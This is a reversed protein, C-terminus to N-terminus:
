RFLSHRRLRFVKTASYGTSNGDADMAEVRWYFKGRQRYAGATLASAVTTGQTVDTEVGASFDPRSAIELTYQALGPRGRWSFILARSHRALATNTVPSLDREFSALPSYPGTLGGSFRARVQWHFAGAGALGIPVMAPIPVSFDRVSGDPLVVHVDYGIAGNVPTWRLAPVFDGSSSGALPQPTPLVQKFTGTSSWTLAIGDADNAQVRWYLTSQAPYTTTSVYGTSGTQVNTLLTGFSPDTSVQLTYTEAGQVPTWRFEPQIAALQAGSTPSLLTPPTSRKQFDAASAHLPDIPLGTQPVVPLGTGDSGSAPLVAWYYSTTEDAYTRTPVFAPIHTFAYDVLTTFTPDRAIIIWYANAGAIPKWTFMPTQGRVVGGVPSLYDGSTPLAVSGTAPANPQFTFANTLFTYDGYVGTDGQARIRVCYHTGAVLNLGGAEFPAGASPYPLPGNGNGRPAWATSPTIVHEDVTATQIDCVGNTRDYVDLDYDSAGAVPNWVLIPTATPWGAPKPGTDSLEDRMHLGTVTPLALPPVTDFFQTFSSGQTWVGKDGQVNIPRVRWYYTNNPLPTTPSFGTAVTTTSCCVRSSSNFDQSFNVDLEYNAAGPVPTWSLLPDFFEPASVLDTLSTVTASPWGWTFSRVASTKGTHAGADIPTVAWYYTGDALTTPPIYSAATTVTQADSVLSTMKPDRAITVQYRVAGLVPTWSLLLPQTPFQVSAGNAPTLLSPAASWVKRFSHTSWRSVSGSKRVGRVRWWYTGDPLTQSLTASTSLTSFNGAGGLVPSHFKRDSALQFEYHDARRVASWHFVGTSYGTLTSTKLATQSVGVRAQSASVGFALALLAAVGGIAGRRLRTQHRIARVGITRDAAPSPRVM